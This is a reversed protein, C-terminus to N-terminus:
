EVPGKGRLNLFGPAKQPSVCNGWVGSFRLKGAGKGKHIGRGIFDEDLFTARNLGISRATKPAPYEARWGQM